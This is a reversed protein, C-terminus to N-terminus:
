IGLKKALAGAYGSKDANTNFLQDYIPLGHANRTSNWTCHHFFVLNSLHM